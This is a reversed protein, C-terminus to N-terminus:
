KLLSEHEENMIRQWNDKFFLRIKKVVVIFGFFEQEFNTNGSFKKIIQELKNSKVIIYLKHQIM